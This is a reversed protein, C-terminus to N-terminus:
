TPSQVFCWSCSKICGKLFWCDLLFYVILCCTPHPTPPRDLTCAIDSSLRGSGPCGLIPQRRGPPGLSFPIRPRLVWTHLAASPSLATDVFLEACHRQPARDQGTHPSHPICPHPCPPPWCSMHLSKYSQKKSGPIWANRVLTRGAWAGSTGSM